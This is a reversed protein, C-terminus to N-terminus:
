AAVRARPPMMGEVRDGSLAQPAPGASGGRGGVATARCHKLQWSGVSTDLHVVMAVHLALSVMHLVM